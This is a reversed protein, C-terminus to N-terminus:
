GDKGVGEGSRQWPTGDADAFWEPDPPFVRELEMGLAQAIRYATPLSPVLEGSVIRSVHSANRGILEGFRQHTYGEAKLIKGFPNKYPHKKSM